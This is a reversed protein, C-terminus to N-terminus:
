TGALLSVVHQHIKSAPREVELPELGVSASPALQSVGGPKEQAISNGRCSYWLM